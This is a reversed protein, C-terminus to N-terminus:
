RTGRRPTYQYISFFMDGFGKLRRKGLFLCRRRRSTSLARHMSGSLLCRNKGKMRGIRRGPEDVDSRQTKELRAARNIAVGMRDNGHVPFTPGADLTVRIDVRHRNHEGAQWALLREGAELALEPAGYVCLYGDGLHKQLLLADAREGTLQDRLFYTTESIRRLDKEASDCIDVICVGHAEASISEELRESGLMARGEEDLPTIYLMTGALIVCTHQRLPFAEDKILRDGLVTGNRSNLDRLYLQGDQFELKCHRKSVTPRVSQIWSDPRRGITLPLQSRFVSVSWGLGSDIYAVKRDRSKKSESKKM